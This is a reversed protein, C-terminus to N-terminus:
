KKKMTRRRGGKKDMQNLQTRWWGITPTLQREGFQIPSRPSSPSKSSKQLKSLIRKSQQQKAKAALMTIIQKNPDNM